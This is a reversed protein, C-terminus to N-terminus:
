KKHCFDFCTAEFDTNSGGAVKEMDADTLEDHTKTEPQAPSPKKVEKDDVM